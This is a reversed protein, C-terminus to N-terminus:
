RRGKAAPLWTSAPVPNAPTRFPALPGPFPGPSAIAPYAGCVFGAALAILTKKM